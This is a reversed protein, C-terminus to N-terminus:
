KFDFKRAFLSKGVTSSARLATSWAHVYKESCGARMVDMMLRSQAITLAAAAQFACRPHNHIQFPILHHLRGRGGGHEETCALDYTKNNVTFWCGGIRGNDLQIMETVRSGLCTEMFRRFEGVDEALLNVHDIRRPCCGRGHYRQALNKLAPSDEGAAEYRRTEWYIEFVHGFPDRFRFAPGHGPDEDTWGLVEYCSAEIAAVRRELAEPSATRYAIHGVGTAEHRTLKLTHYEYDDFARLWASRGNEESLTLGYVREFFDLSEGYCDTLVEVHGLHAVDCAM